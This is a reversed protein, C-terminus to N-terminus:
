VGSTCLMELTYDILPMNALPLLCRPQDFTLPAFRQNFSDALLVAQLIDECEWENNGKGKKSM